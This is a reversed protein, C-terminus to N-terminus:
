KKYVDHPGYASLPPIRRINHAPHERMWADMSDDVDNGIVGMCTDSEEWPADGRM